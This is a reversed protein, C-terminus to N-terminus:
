RAILMRRTLTNGNHSLRYLYLGSPLASADFRASYGGAGDQVVSGFDTEVAEPTTLAIDPVPRGSGTLSVVLSPTDPDNSRVTLTGSQVNTSTPDFELTLVWNEAGNAALTRPLSGPQIFNQISSAIETLTFADSGALTLNSVILSGKGKNILTITQVGKANGAGDDAVDAFPVSLDNGPLVSDTALVDPQPNVITATDRDIGSGMNRNNGENTETVEGDADVIMGIYFNSQSNGFPNVSPLSMLGDYSNYTLGKLGASFSLTYLLYGSDSNITSNTCLYLKVKFSTANGGSLNQAAFHFTCLDGWNLTGNQIDFYANTYTTGGNFGALDPAPITVTLSARDAGDGLNRNNSENSESVQNLCDVYMGIYFTGAGGLATITDETPLQLNASWGNFSSAALSPASYMTYLTYDTAPDINSDKSLYFRVSYTGSAADGLNAVYFYVMATQGASVSSSTSRFYYSPYSYSRGDFGLLDPAAYATLGFATMALSLLTGLSMKGRRM